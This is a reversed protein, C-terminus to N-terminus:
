RHLPFNPDVPWYMMITVLCPTILFHSSVSNSLGIDRPMIATTAPHPRHISQPAASSRRSNYRGPCRMSPMAIRNWSVSTRGIPRGARPTRAHIQVVAIVQDADLHHFLRGSAKSRRSRTEALARLQRYRRVARPRLPTILMFVVGFTPLTTPIRDTFSSVSTIIM